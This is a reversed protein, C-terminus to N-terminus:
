ARVGASRAPAHVASLRAANAAAAAAIFGSFLPHGDRPNSTFEPHFQTAVFWPHSPLEVIEVLEDPSMGSFVLGGARYRDLYGNNFEYRHRHRERIVDRGYIERARSGALLRVDQGGLRMTGGKDSADSRSQAGRAADQWETILAIVPHATAPNFETSTAGDLGLVHRGYEIVALQMGLCIGLYPIGHERAYRVARIKGEIGREGFGGPVLIADMGELMATGREELDTSEIFHINVRTRTKVGAHTLAENLSIYSDRNQVYKGVMAIHAERAPHTKAEVVAEWESLDAVKAVDDLRLKEVVIDDLGQAHLLMPIKYIDDADIASIVAREEVNTFLAIKRRHEPPLPHQARCLLVDPQIGIGRLEKVSHQTPKTKIESGGGVVPVLTLHMFIARNRGVEIGIQRIAELFPLSEIDGVTGGVEVMCVDADAAGLMIRRKIEDTIHPIVQVTAGLYDGRREKAIVSEYIRGTTFNSHRGTVTRVFREYHGLDLDSETGDDTVFVEGHQFPSMTGPDVNIYPDLKVMAIKLGRAELIAALSASAIGKGLSSVVGGTVFVFRPM